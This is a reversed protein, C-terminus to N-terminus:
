KIIKFYVVSAVSGGIIIAVSIGFVEMLEM